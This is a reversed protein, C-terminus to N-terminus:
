CEVAGKHTNQISQYEKKALNHGETLTEWEPEKEALLVQVRSVVLRNEEIKQKLFLERTKAGAISIRVSTVTKELDIYIPNVQQSESKVKQLLAIDDELLEDLIGKYFPDEAISKSLVYFRDQKQLEEEARALRAEEEILTETM